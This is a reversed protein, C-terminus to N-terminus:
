PRPARAWWRQIRDVIPEVKQMEREAALGGYGQDAMEFLGGRLADSVTAVADGNVCASLVRDIIADYEDEPAGLLGLPDWEWLLDRLEQHRAKYWRRTDDKSPDVCLLIAVAESRKLTLAGKTTVPTHGAKGASGRQGSM